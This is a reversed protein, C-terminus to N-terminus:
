RGNASFHQYDKTSSFNGGWGWGASSFAKVVVDGRVIMGPAGLSRDLFQEAVPDLVTGDRRVYPNELPNIDIALGYAHQSITSSGSVTRCNFASTNDDKTSADDDGGYAEIPIMKRIPFGAEYLRGFVTIIEDTASANVVLTGRHDNGDFGVYTVEVARLDDLPVPCGERWTVGIM